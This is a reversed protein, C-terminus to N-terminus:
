FSLFGFSALVSRILIGTISIPVPSISDSVLEELAADDIATNHVMNDDITNEINSTTIIETAPANNLTNNIYGVNDTAKIQYEINSESEIVIDTGPHNTNEHLTAKYGDEILQQEVEQELVFGKINYVHRAIEKEDYLAFYSIIEENSLEGLSDSYARRTADFVDEQSINILKVENLVEHIRSDNKASDEFADKLVNM